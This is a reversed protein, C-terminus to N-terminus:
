NERGYLATRTVELVKGALQTAIGEAIATAQSVGAIDGVGLTGISLQVTVGGMGPMSAGGSKPFPIVLDGWGPREGLLGMTPKDVLRGHSGEAFAFPRFSSSGGTANTGKFGAVWSAASQLINNGGTKFYSSNTGASLAGGLSPISMSSIAARLANVKAIIVDIAASEAAKKRDIEALQQNLANQRRLDAREEDERQRTLRIQREEDERRKQDEFAQIAAERSEAIRQKEAALQDAIDQILQAKAAQREALQEQLDARREDAAAQLDAIREARREQAIRREEQFADTEAQSEEDHDEQQRRLEIEAQRQRQVFGSVDNAMELDLLDNNIDELMRAREKAFQKDERLVDKRFDEYAKREDAMFESDIKAMDDRFDQAVDAISANLKALEKDAAAIRDAGQQRIEELRATGDEDIQALRDRHAQEQDQRRRQFDANERLDRIIRDETQDHITQGNRSLIETRQQELQEIRENAEERAKTLEEEAAALDNITFSGKELEDRLRAAAAEDAALTKRLEDARAVLPDDASSIQAAAFRLRAELDGEQEQVDKFAADFAGEITALEKRNHEISRTLDDFQKQADETTAGERMLDFFKQNAETAAEVAKRSGELSANLAVFGAGVALLLGMVPLAVPPLGAFAATVKGLADTTLAGAGPIGIAPLARVERGLAQLRPSLKAGGRGEIQQTVGAIQDDTAGVKILEKQVRKLADEWEQTGKKARGFEKVLSDIQKQKGLRAFEANMKQTVSVTDGIEGELKQFNKQQSNIFQKLQQDSQAISQKHVNVMLLLEDVRQNDAM